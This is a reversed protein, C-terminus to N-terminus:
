PTGRRIRAEVTINHEPAYIVYWAEKGTLEAQQLTDLVQSLSLQHSKTGENVLKFEVVKESDSVDGKISGAGSAPHQRMGRRIAFTREAKRGADFPTVNGHDVPLRRKM